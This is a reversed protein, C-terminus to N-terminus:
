TCGFCLYYYFLFTRIRAAGKHVEELMALEREIAEVGSSMTL